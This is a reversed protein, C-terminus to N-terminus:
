FGALISCFMVRCSQMLFFSQCFNQGSIPDFRPVLSVWNLGKNSVCPTAFKFLIPILLYGLTSKIPFWRSSLPSPGLNWIAHLCDIFHSVDFCIQAQLFTWLLEFRTFNEPIAYFLIVFRVTYMMVWNQGLNDFDSFISLEISLKPSRNNSPM